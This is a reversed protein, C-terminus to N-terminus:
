RVTTFVKEPVSVKGSWRGVGTEMGHLVTREWWFARGSSRTIAKFIIQMKDFEMVDNTFADIDHRIATIIGTMCEIRVLLMQTCIYIGESAIESCRKKQHFMGWGGREGLMHTSICVGDDM